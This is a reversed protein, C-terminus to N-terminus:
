VVAENEDIGVQGSLHLLEYTRVLQSVSKEVARKALGIGSKHLKLQEVDRIGCLILRIQECGVKQQVFFLNIWESTFPEVNNLYSVVESGIDIERKKLELLYVTIIVQM